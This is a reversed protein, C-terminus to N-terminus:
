INFKKKQFEDWDVGHFHTWNWKFDSYKGRRGPFEYKTWAQIPFPKSIDVNRDSPLDEIAYVEETGDAGLRHNLVIDAYVRIGNEHLKKIANIYEEKTGYKTEISGKQDFEGLDYLDYVAYGM